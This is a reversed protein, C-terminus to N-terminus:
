VALAHRKRGVRERIVKGCRQNYIRRYEPTDAKFPIKEVKRRTNVNETLQLNELIIRIRPLINSLLQSIRSETFDIVKGAEAQNFGDIFILKLILTEQRSLGKCLKEFLDKTDIREPELDIVGQAIDQLEYHSGDLEEGSLYTSLSYTKPVFKGKALAIKTNRSGTQRRIYDIMDYYARKSAFKISKLKQVNGMLWCEAVLENVQFWPYKRHLAMAQKYLAPALQEYTLPM